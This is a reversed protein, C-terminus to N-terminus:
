FFCLFFFFFFFFFFAGWFSKSWILFSHINEPCWDFLHKTWHQLNHNYFDCDLDKDLMKFFWLGSWCDSYLKKFIYRLFVCKVATDPIRITSQSDSDDNHDLIRLWINWFVCGLDLYKVFWSGSGSTWFIGIRIRAGSIRNVAEWQRPSCLQILNNVSHTQNQM